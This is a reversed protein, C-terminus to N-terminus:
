SQINEPEEGTPESLLEKIKDQLGHNKDRLSTIVSKQYDVTKVLTKNERRLRACEAVIGM